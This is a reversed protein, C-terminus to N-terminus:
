DCTSAIFSSTIRCPSVTREFKRLQWTIQIDRIYFYTGTRPTLTGPKKQIILKNSVSIVLFQFLKNNVIVSIEQKRSTGINKGIRSWRKPPESDKVLSKIRRVVSRCRCVQEQKRLLWEKYGAVTDVSVRVPKKRLVGYSLSSSLPCLSGYPERCHLTGEPTAELFFNTFHKNFPPAAAVFQQVYIHTKNSNEAINNGEQRILSWCCMNASCHAM